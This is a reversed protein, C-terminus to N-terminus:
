VVEPITIRRPISKLVTTMGKYRVELNKDRQFRGGYKLHISIFETVTRCKLLGPPEM